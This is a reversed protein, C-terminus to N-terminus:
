MLEYNKRSLSESIEESDVIVPHIFVMLNKKVITDTTSRFLGGLLPLDGLLPVKNVLERTEDSVLGGVVLITEDEVLVKTKISRKNTVIDNAVTIADSSTEVEQM